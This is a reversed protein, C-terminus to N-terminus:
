AVAQAAEKPIRAFTNPSSRENEIRGIEAGSPIGTRENEAKLWAAASHALERMWSPHCKRYAASSPSIRPRPM